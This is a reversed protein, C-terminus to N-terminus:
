NLLAEALTARIKNIAVNDPPRRPHIRNTVLSLGKKREMDGIIVCGTFGTKGFTRPSARRGMYPRNIEWALGAEGSPIQANTMREVTEPTFYRQGNLEGRNLIMALFRALDPATSFLGAMGSILAPRLAHSGEDHVSGHVLGGRDPDIETPAIENLSFTDLPHFTTRALGLPKFFLEVGLEDIQRGTIRNIVLTSILATSNTYLHHSGPAAKLPARVILNIIGQAPTQRLSAMSPVDLDLTYTLLHFITAESKGPETAFEPIIEAVPTDLTLQGHEILHLLLCGLPLTKTVSAVDYLTEETVIPSSTDYTHHGTAVVTIEGQDVIGVAAGPFVQAAIADDLVQKIEQQKNM